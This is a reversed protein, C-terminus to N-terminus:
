TLALRVMTQSSFRLIRTLLTGQKVPHFPRVKTIVTHGGNEKVFDAVRGTPAKDLTNGGLFLISVSSPPLAHQYQGIFATM